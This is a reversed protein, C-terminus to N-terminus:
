RFYYAKDKGEQIKSTIDMGEEGFQSRHRQVYGIDEVTADGAAIHGLARDFQVKPLNSIYEKQRKRREMVRRAKHNERGFLKVEGQNSYNLSHQNMSHNKLSSGSDVIARRIEISRSSM